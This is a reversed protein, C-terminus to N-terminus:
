EEGGCEPHSLDSLSTNKMLDSKFSLLAVYFEIDDAALIDTKMKLDIIKYLKTAHKDIADIENAAEPYMEQCLRGIMKSMNKM